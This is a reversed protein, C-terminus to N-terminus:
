LQNWKSNGHVKNQKEELEQPQQMLCWSRLNSLFQKTDAPEDLNGHAPLTILVVTKKKKFVSM